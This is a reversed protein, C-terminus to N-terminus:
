GRAVQVVADQQPWAVWQMPNVSDGPNGGPLIVEIEAGQIKLLRSGQVDDAPYTLGIEILAGRTQDQPCPVLIVPAVPTQPPLVNVILERIPSMESERCETVVTTAVGYAGDETVEIHVVDGNEGYAGFKARNLDRTGPTRLYVWSGTIKILSDGQIDDPPYDVKIPITVVETAHHAM